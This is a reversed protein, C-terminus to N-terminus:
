RNATIQISNVIQRNFLLYLVMLPVMATTTAAMVLTWNQTYQGQLAATATTMVALKNGTTIILPWLFNNAHTVVTIVALTAIVPKSLPVVMSWLIRLAGAGDMTAADIIEQPIGRFYERLLFVAYPSGFLYPLVLGWFTNGLNAQTMMLYLPVVTVMPPVMLTGLYVWFLIDRGPFTLRAFAYAAMISFVLQGVLVVVVVGATVLMAHGFAPGEGGSAFLQRYNTLSWPNPLALSDESAFQSPTKFSTMVSLVFPGLTLVVAGLLILHTSIDAWISGRRSRPLRKEASTM